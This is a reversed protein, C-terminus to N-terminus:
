SNRLLPPVFFSFIFWEPYVSGQNLDLYAVVPMEYPWSSALVCGTALSFLATVSRVTQFFIM